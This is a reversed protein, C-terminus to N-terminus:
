RLSRQIGDSLLSDFRGKPIIQNSDVERLNSRLNGEVSINIKKVLQLKRKKQQQLAEHKKQLKEKVSPQLVIELYQVGLNAQANTTGAGMFVDLDLSTDNYNGQTPKKDWLEARSRSNNLFPLVIRNSTQKKLIPLDDLMSIMESVEAKNRNSLYKPILSSSVNLKKDSAIITLKNFERLADVKDNAKLDMQITRIQNRRKYDSM